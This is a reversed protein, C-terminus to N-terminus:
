KYLSCHYSSNLTYHSKRKKFQKTAHNKDTKHIVYRNYAGQIANQETNQSAWNMNIKIVYYSLYKQNQIKNRNIAIFDNIKNRNIIRSNNYM